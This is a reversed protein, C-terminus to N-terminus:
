KQSNEKRTRLRGMLYEPPMGASFTSYRGKRLCKPIGPYNLAPTGGLPNGAKYDQLTPCTKVLEPNDWNTCTTGDLRCRRAKFITEIEEAFECSM